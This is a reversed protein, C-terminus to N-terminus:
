INAGDSQEILALLSAKLRDHTTSKWFIREIWIGNTAAIVLETTKPSVGDQIAQQAWSRYKQELQTLLEPYNAIAMMLAIFIEPTTQHDDFSAEVYACLWRGSTNPLKDYIENLHQEFDELSYHLMGEILAEKSPFHYLLGGKSVGSKTAVADLTLHQLGQDILIQSATLLLHERKSNKNVM